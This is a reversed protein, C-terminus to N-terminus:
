AWSLKQKIMLGHTANVELNAIAGDLQLPSLMLMIPSLASATL